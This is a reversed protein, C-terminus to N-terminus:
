KEKFNQIVLLTVLFERHYQNLVEQIYAKRVYQQEIICEAMIDQLVRFKDDLCISM